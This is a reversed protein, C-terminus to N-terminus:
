CLLSSTNFLHFDLIVITLPYFVYFFLLVQQLKRESLWQYSKVVIDVDKNDVLGSAICEKLKVCAVM